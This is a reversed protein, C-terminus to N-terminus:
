LYQFFESSEQKDFIAQSAPNEDEFGEYDHSSDEDYEEGSTDQVGDDDIELDDICKEIRKKVKSENQVLTQHSDMISRLLQDFSSAKKANCEDDLASDELAGPRLQSSPVRSVRRNHEYISEAINTEQWTQLNKKQTQLQKRLDKAQKQLERWESHLALRESNIRDTIGEWVQSEVKHKLAQEKMIKMSSKCESLEERLRSCDIKEKELDQQVKAAKNKQFVLEDQAIAYPGSLKEKENTLESLQVQLDDVHKGLQDIMIQQDSKTSKLLEDRQQEAHILDENLQKDRMALKTEEQILAEQRDRIAESKRNLDLHAVRFKEKL